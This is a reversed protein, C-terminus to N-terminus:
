FGGLPLHVEVFYSDTSTFTMADGTRWVWELHMADYFWWQSSAPLPLTIVNGGTGTGPAGNPMALTSASTAHAAIHLIRAGSPIAPTGSAGVYRVVQGGKIDGWM